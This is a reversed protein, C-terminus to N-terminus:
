IGNVYVVCDRLMSKKEVYKCLELFGRWNFNKSELIKRCKAKAVWLAIDITRM